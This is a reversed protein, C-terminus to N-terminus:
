RVAIILKINTFYLFLYEMDSSKVKKGFIEM